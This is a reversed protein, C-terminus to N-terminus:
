STMERGSRVMVHACLRCDPPRIGGSVRYGAAVLHAGPTLMAIHFPERDVEPRHAVWAVPPSEFVAGHISGPLERSASVNLRRGSAPLSLSRLAFHIFLRVLASM